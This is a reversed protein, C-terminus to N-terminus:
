RGAEERLGSLSCFRSDCRASDAPSVCRECQRCWAKEATVAQEPAALAPIRLPPRDRAPDSLFSSLARVCGALEDDEACRKTVQRCAHIVTTHDRGGFRRGIEPMSQPTLEKALFMAVQRPRAVDASRRASTMESLPLSFREAVASQIEAITVKQRRAMPPIWAPDINYGMRQLYEACSYSRFTYAARM